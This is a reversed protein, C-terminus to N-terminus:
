TARRNVAAKFFDATDFSGKEKEPKEEKKPNRKDYKGELVKAFNEPRMIWSFDAVWGSDNEGKLFDSKGAKTLMKRIGEMGHEKWRENIYGKRTDTLVKVEVLDPCLEKYMQVIEGYPPKEKEKYEKEKYEKDKNKIRRETGNGDRLPLTVTVNGTVNGTVNSELTQQQRERYKEVRQRNQERIKEMGDINQHKEWNPITIVDEVTEILGFEEFTDLAERVAQVDRRFVRALTKATYPISGNILFVGGNNQRGALCLLKIWIVILEDANDLTELLLIKEDEFMDVAVKIWKIDAM